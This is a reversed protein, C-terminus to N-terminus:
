ACSYAALTIIRPRRFINKSAYEQQIWVTPTQMTLRLDFINEEDPKMAYRSKRREAMGLKPVQPARHQAAM